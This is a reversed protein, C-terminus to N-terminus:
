YRMRMIIHRMRHVIHLEEPELEKYLHKIFTTKGSGNPGVLGVFHYKNISIDIEKLIEQSKISFSLSQTKILLEEM